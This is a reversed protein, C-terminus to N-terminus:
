AETGNGRGRRGRARRTGKRPKPDPEVGQALQDLRNAIEADRGEM